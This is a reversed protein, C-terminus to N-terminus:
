TVYTKCFSPHGPPGICAWTASSTDLQRGGVNPIKFRAMATYNVTAKGNGVNHASQWDSKTVIVLNDWVAYTITAVAAPAENGRAADAYSKQTKCRDIQFQRAAGASSQLGDRAAARRRAEPDKYLMARFAEVLAVNKVAKQNGSRRMTALSKAAEGVRRDMALKAAASAKPQYVGELRVELDELGAMVQVVQFLSVGGTTDHGHCVKRLLEVRFLSSFKFPDIAEAFANKTLEVGIEDDLAKLYAALQANVVSLNSGGKKSERMAAAGKKAVEDAVAVAIDILAAQEAQLLVFVEENLLGGDEDESGAAGGGDSGRTTAEPGYVKWVLAKHVLEQFQHGQAARTPVGKGPARTEGATVVAYPTDNVGPTAAEVTAATVLLPVTPTQVAPEGRTSSAEANDSTIAVMWKNLEDVVIKLRAKKTLAPFCGDADNILTGFSQPSGIRFRKPAGTSAVSSVFAGHAGGPLSRLAEAVKPNEEVYNLPVWTTVSPPMDLWNCLM